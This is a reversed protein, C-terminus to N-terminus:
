SEPDPTSSRLASDPELQRIALGEYQGPEVVTDLLDGLEGGRSMGIRSRQETARPVPVVLRTSPSTVRLDDTRQVLSIRHERPSSSASSVLESRIQYAPAPRSSPSASPGHLLPCYQDQHNQSNEKNQMRGEGYVDTHHVGRAVLKLPARVGASAPAEAIRCDPFHLSGV